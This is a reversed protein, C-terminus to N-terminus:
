YMMVGGGNGVAQGGGGWGGGGGKGRPVELGALAVNVKHLRLLLTREVEEAAAAATEQASKRNEANAESAILLGNVVDLRASLNGNEIMSLLEHEM